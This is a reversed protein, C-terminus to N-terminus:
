GLLRKAKRFLNSIEVAKAHIQRLILSIETEGEEELRKAWQGYSEAHEVNHELWHELLAKLREIEV